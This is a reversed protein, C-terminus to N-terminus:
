KKSKIKGRGKKLYYETTKEKGGHNHYKDKANELLEQRNFWYYSVKIHVFFCIVKLQNMVGLCYFKDLKLHFLIILLGVMLM